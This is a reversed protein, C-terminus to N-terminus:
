DLMEDALFKLTPDEKVHPLLFKQITPELRFTGSDRRIFSLDKLRQYTHPNFKPLKKRALEDTWSELLCLRQLMTREDASLDRLMREVLKTRIEAAIEKIATDAFEDKRKVFSKLFVPYGGSFKIIEDHFNEDVSANTLFIRAEDDSLFDLRRSLFKEDLKNRSAFVWITNSMKAILGDVNKDGHLWWDRHLNNAGLKKGDLVECTDLCVVFKKEGNSWDFIDQAFLTPLYTRLAEPNRLNARRTIEAELSANKKLRDGTKKTALYNNFLKALENVTNVGPIIGLADVTIDEITAVAVAGPVAANSFNTTSKLADKARNLWPNKEIWSKLQPKDIKTGEKLFLHFNGLEFYPFECGFNELEAKWAQLIERLDTGNAFDHYLVFIKKYKASVKKADDLEHMIRKLLTTKGVGGSGYFNVLRVGGHTLFEHVQERFFNQEDGRGVFIDECKRAHFPRNGATM